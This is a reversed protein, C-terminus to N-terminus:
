ATKKTYGITNGKISHRYQAIRVYLKRPLHAIDKYKRPRGRMKADKGM